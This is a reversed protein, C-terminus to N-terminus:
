GNPDDYDIVLKGRGDRSTVIRTAAVQGDLLDAIFNAYTASDSEDAPQQTRVFRRRRTAM